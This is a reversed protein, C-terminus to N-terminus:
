GPQELVQAIKQALEQATYPKQIFGDLGEAMLDESSYGSSLIVRARPEIARLERFVTMGDMHPMSQDLLVCAVGSPDKRFLDIAEPGNAAEIVRWGDKRLIRACTTRVIDEDDVVMIAGANQRSSVAAANGPEAAKADDAPPAEGAPFLVRVTSGQKPISDVFIAGHHARVIGLIASLGLGRGVSKTSFFPDFLRLMTDRDMGCGTDAVEVYVYRGAPPIEALRSRSLSATDCAQVGTSLSIAGPQEGIAESANTILNMIVQQIQGPDANIFPLGQELGVNLVVIKSICARFLHANERVLESLDIKRVEFRGKGSYALMQRTLDAARRAAEASQEISSRAPSLPSLDALALDLNGLIAMLLNNFDHAIGGALIGLSELKQAHLLRREMELRSEEARKREGIETALTIVCQKGDILVPAMSALVEVIEGSKGRLGIEYNRIRGEAKVIEVVRARDAAAPYINLELATRGVAEDRAYGLLKTFGDNIELFRGESLTSVAILSPSSRFIEALKRESTRLAEDARKQDTIDQITGIMRVPRGAANFELEGRGSVWRERRDNNRLIRYEMEFRNHLGVVHQQLYDRMQDRQGPAVLHLWGGVDKTYHEDIGFIEDLLPTSSWIGTELDLVYSGLRAVAQSKALFDRTEQLAAEVKRRETVDRAVAYVFNGSPSSNWELWRYTGDKCRYRNVFGLVERKEALNNTARITSERDEPHVFEIFPRGELDALSYGLIKEWQPNLRVFRGAMDAICLLDLSLAFYRDLEETKERLAEAIRKRETIDQVTFQLLQSGGSQFSMLHIEADWVEGNPRQSRWEFVVSGEALAKRSYFLAKEQSPTGDYQVATSFDIPSRGVVADRSAVGITEVAAPNCDVYHLTAADLVVIPARSGDFIRRRFEESSRLAAAERAIRRRLSRQRAAEAAAAALALALGIALAGAIGAESCAAPAARRPSVPEPRGIRGAAAAFPVLAVIAVVRGLRNRAQNM